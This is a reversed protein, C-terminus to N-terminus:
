LFTLKKRLFNIWWIGQLLKGICLDNVLLEATINFLETGDIANERFRECYLELNLSTLWNCVDDVTWAM